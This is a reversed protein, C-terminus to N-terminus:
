FHFLNRFAEVISHTKNPKLREEYIRYLRALFILRFVTFLLVGLGILWLLHAIVGFCIVAFSITFLAFLTNSGYMDGDIMGEMFLEETYALKSLTTTQKPNGFVYKPFLMLALIILSWLPAIYGVGAFLWVLLFSVIIM